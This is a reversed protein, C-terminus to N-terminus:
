IHAFLMYLAFCIIYAASVLLLLRIIKWSLIRRGRYFSFGLFSFWLFDAAVHGALFSLFGSLGAISTFGAIAPLGLELWWLFFYPNSCSALFGSVILGLASLDTVNSNSTLISESIDMSRMNLAGRILQLGMLILVVGGVYKIAIKVGAHELLPDLGLFILLIIVGEIIFHGLIILPGAFKRGRLSESVVLAFIPGPVVAGSLAALFSAAVIGALELM